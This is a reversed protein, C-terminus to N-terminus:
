RVQVKSTFNLQNNKMNVLYMGAKLSTQLKVTSQNTTLAQRYVLQGSISYVSVNFNNNGECRSLDITIHNANNYVRIDPSLDPQQENIGIYNISQSMLYAVENLIVKLSGDTYNSYNYNRPTSNDDAGWQVFSRYSAPFNSSGDYTEIDPDWRVMVVKGPADANIDDATIYALPTGNNVASFGDFPVNFFDYMGNYWALQDGDTLDVGDFAPDNVDVVTVSTTIGDYVTGDDSAKKADTSNFFMMRNNRLLWVSGILVPVQVDAWDLYDTFDGSNVARGIMVMGYDNMSAYDFPTYGITVDYNESLADIIPQDLNTNGDSDALLEDSIFLISNRQANVHLSTFILVFACILTFHKM